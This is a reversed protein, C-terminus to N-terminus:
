GTTMVADHVNRVGFFNASSPSPLISFTGYSATDSGIRSLNGWSWIGEATQNLWSPDSGDAPVDPPGKLLTGAGSGPVDAMTLVHRIELQDGSAIITSSGGNPQSSAGVTLTTG